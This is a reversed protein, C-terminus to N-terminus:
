GSIFKGVVPIKNIIYIIIASCFLCVFTLIPVGIWPNLVDWKLGVKELAHLTLIHVLYIGYSYQNLFKKIRETTNNSGFKFYKFIFFIGISMLVINPSLYSYYKEQFIGSKFSLFYTGLVTILFGITFSLIGIILGHRFSKISLYYGLIVLGIYGSFYSLDFPSDYFLTLLWIILFYLIETETCNQIYKSIIPIFLYIGIIMYVYWLHFSSGTILQEGIWIVKGLFNNPVLNKELNVKLISYIISWFVFPIIIRIVRRKLFDILEYKKPLILTGTLMIFVPVCFRAWSGYLLDVSMFSIRAKLSVHVLIVAFTSVIRLDNLWSMDNRPQLSDFNSNLPM